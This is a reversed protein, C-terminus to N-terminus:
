TVMMMELMMMTYKEIATMYKVCLPRHELIVFIDGLKSLRARLSKSNAANNPFAYFFM